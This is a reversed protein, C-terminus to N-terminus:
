PGDLDLVQLNRSKDLVTGWVKHSGQHRSPGFNIIPGIGLDLDRISELADILKETTLDPGAKRLGEVLCEAAIFGELSVFGPRAEPFYKQLLDRYRIVGTAGSRYYPVVQTVIVGAGYDPGMERFREALSDAGVFSVAALEPDIKRDKLNKVFQAAAEYTPVMVIARVQDRHKEIQEVAQLVQISNRNYTTRLIKEERVGFERLARAVGRFGDEGYADNQAFVAIKDAPIDKHKAFYRVMAATEDAYSARYNFVYRDPPDQRLFEAGTMPAFFLLHHEIAYPATLRATPTGVNGIVAFAKRTEFLDRMNAFARTPEYGDDLVSLKLRRGHIGGAENVAEFCTRIGFVMNIGLDRNSGSYTTTTGFAIENNTVGQALPGAAAPREPATAAVMPEDSRGRFHLFMWAALVCGAILGIGLIAFAPLRRKVGGGGAAAISAMQSSSQHASEAAVPTQLGPSSKPAVRECLADLDHQMEIASQYRECPNKAMARGIIAACAEPIDPHSKRPDLPEAHCHAYMIQITTGSESYPNLGTLLAYYTAGLSYIDSRFDVPKSECQEPSMFYPTGLVQGAQTVRQEGLVGKVLGFDAIKVSGTETRLLNAPKVDRHVLGVAHAASLGRAADAIIKTAELPAFRGAKQLVDAVSGGTVLEMVLFYAGKVEGVEHIAVTNPHSLKGAARAEALFRAIVAGDGSFESSLVKIAVDREILTDHAKYVVGMGGTGLVADIRYRGLTQGILSGVGVNQGATMYESAISTDDSGEGSM